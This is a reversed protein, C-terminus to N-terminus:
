PARQGAGAADLFRLTRVIQEDAKNLRDLFRQEVTFAFVVQRGHRDALYYYNWQIPVDEVTGRCIVRYLRYDLENPFQQAQVMEGFSKGLAKQIDAQFTELSVL